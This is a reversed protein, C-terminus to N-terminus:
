IGRELGEYAKVVAEKPGICVLSLRDDFFLSKAVRLIDESQVRDIQALLQDPTYLPEYFLEAKALRSMRNATNELGLMMNGKIQRKSRDLEIESVKEQCMRNFENRILGIVEEVHEPSTGAYVAFSGTDYFCSHYTFTSYVLGREERLEQFLRSSMGGGLISDLVYLAYRDPHNRPLGLTGLCIHVLETDKTKYKHKPKGEVDYAQLGSYSGKFQALRKHVEEVVQEHTINGVGVVVLNEPIYYQDMYERIHNKDFATINEAKGLVSQSLPHGDCVSEMFLDHVLEDPTDEYMKIEELIVGKEKELEKDAFVSNLLMDVIIETALSFHEDLVKAFFCTHEKSTYANLQGGASDIEEAINRASRTQTGKFLMHEIFHSIGNNDAREYRSGARFWFGISASRLYNIEETVICIGNDLVSRKYL